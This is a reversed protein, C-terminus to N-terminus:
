KYKLLWILAWILLPLMFIIGGIWFALVSIVLGIIFLILGTLAPVITLLWLAGPVLYHPAILIIAMFAIFGILFVGLGIIWILPNVLATGVIFTIIGAPVLCLSITGFISEWYIKQSELANNQSHNLKKFSGRFLLKNKSRKTAKKKKKKKKEAPPKVKEVPPPYFSEAKGIQTNLNLCLICLLLKITLNM